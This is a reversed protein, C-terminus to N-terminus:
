VAEPMEIATIHLLSLIALGETEPFGVVARSGIILVSEPHRILHVDGNTMRIEFPEFPQRRLLERLTEANM